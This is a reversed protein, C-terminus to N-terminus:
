LNCTTCAHSPILHPTQEIDWDPSNRVVTHGESVFCPTEKHPFDRIAPVGFEGGAGKGDLDLVASGRVPLDRWKQLPSSRFPLLVQDFGHEVLVEAEGSNASTMGVTGVM